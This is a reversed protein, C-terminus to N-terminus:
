RQTPPVAPTPLGDGGADDGRVGEQHLRAPQIRARRVREVGPSLSWAGSQPFSYKTNILSSRATKASAKVMRPTLCVHSVHTDLM